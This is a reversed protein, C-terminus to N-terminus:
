NDEKTERDPFDKVKIKTIIRKNERTRLEITPRLVWGEAEADRLASEIRMPNVSFAEVALYLRGEWMVSVHGIGVQEAIDEVNERELFMGSDTVMVDYLIFGKDSRYGGGKQIGAGYGEGYLTLGELGAVEAVAAIDQLAVLLEVQLQANDTRGGVVSLGDPNVHIRCNTGDVKETAEWDTFALYGFEPKSWQGELFTKYHNKPDRKFVSEIKHYLPAATM